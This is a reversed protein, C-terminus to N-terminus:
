KLLEGAQQMRQILDPRQFIRIQWEPVKSAAAQGPPPSLKMGRLEDGVLEASITALPIITGNEYVIAEAVLRDEDRYVTVPTGNWLDVLFVHKEDRGTLKDVMAFNKPDAHLFKLNNLYVGNKDSLVQYGYPDHLLVKCTGADLHPQHRGSLYVGSGDVAVFSDGLVSLTAPDAKAIRECGWYAGNADIHYASGVHRLTEADLHPQPEGSSYVRNKDTVIRNGVLRATSPDSQAIPQDLYWITNKDIAYAFHIPKFTAPDAHDLEVVLFRRQSIWKHYVRNQDRSYEESLARFTAADPSPCPALKRGLGRSFGLLNMRSPQDIRTNGQATEGGGQFHIHEGRRVYGFGVNQAVIDPGNALLAFMFALMFVAPSYVIMKHATQTNALRMWWPCGLRLHIRICTNCNPDMM